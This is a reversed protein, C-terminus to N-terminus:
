AGSAPVATFRILSNILQNSSSRHAKNFYLINLKIIFFCIKGHWPFFFYFSNYKQMTQMSAQFIPLMILNTKKSVAKVLHTYFHGKVKCYVIDGVNVDELNVPVLLVPQRSKLIPTMSNGPERSIISEGAELKEKKWNLM